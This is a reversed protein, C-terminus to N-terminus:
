ILIEYIEEELIRGDPTKVELYETIMKGGYFIPIKKSSVNRRDVPYILKKIELSKAYEIVGGIAERGYHNGHSSIKTWIGLEPSEDKLNHLGVLGIFEDSSKLTIAYVYDTHNERSNVFSKVVKYTEDINKSVKPFMYTIIQENFHKFIEKTHVDSVPVLVLRRTEINIIENM